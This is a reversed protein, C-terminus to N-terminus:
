FITIYNSKPHLLKFTIVTTEELLRWGGYMMRTGREMKVMVLLRFDCYFINVDVVLSGVPPTAPGTAGPGLWGKM